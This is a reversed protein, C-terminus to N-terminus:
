EDLAKYLKELYLHLMFYKDAFEENNDLFNALDARLDERQGDTVTANIKFNEQYKLKIKM